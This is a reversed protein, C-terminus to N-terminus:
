RADIFGEIAEALAATAELPLLHGVSPFVVMEANSLYPMLNNRLVAVPEVQDHEGAIVLAPVGVMQTRDSIDEAIGRLPWEARADSASARSDELVQMKHHESLSTATLIHDRAGVVTAETDYAHSLGERYEPTIEAAPKAPGSGVLVIGRLGVPETAAILQAVKGGMSHGVLVFEQAQANALIAVTDDALQQLTYPGPLDKSRNWGRFDICLTDRGPLLDVVPQWTRASGGWYHLFVLTPATGDRHDYAPLAQQSEITM